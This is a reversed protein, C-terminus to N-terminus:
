NKFKQWLRVIKDDFAKQQIDFSFTNNRYTISIQKTSLTYFSEDMGDLTRIVKTIRILKFQELRKIKKYTSSIPINLTSSINRASLERKDLLKMIDLSPEDTLISLVEKATSGNNM